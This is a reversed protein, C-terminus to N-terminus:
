ANEAIISCCIHRNRDFDVQNISVQTLLQQRLVKMEQVAAATRNRIRQQKFLHQLTVPLVDSRIPASLLDPLCSAPLYGLLRKTEKICGLFYSIASFGM